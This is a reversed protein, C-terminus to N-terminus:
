ADGSDEGFKAEAPQVRVRISSVSKPPTNPNSTGPGQKLEASLCHNLQDTLRTAISRIRSAWAASDAFVVAIGSPTGAKSDEIHILRSHSALDGAAAQWLQQLSDAQRAIELGRQLWDSGESGSLFETPTQFRNPDGPKDSDSM